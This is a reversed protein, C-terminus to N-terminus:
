RSLGPNLMGGTRLHRSIGRDIREDLMREMARVTQDALDRNQDRTGGSGNVTVSMNNVVSYGAGARQGGQMTVPISRGDPLPVYAEPTSGEGFMAFQPHDAVGGAAYRRLQAPGGPTMIGGDAFLGSFFNGISSFFGGEGGGHMANAASSGLDKGGGSFIGLAGTFLNGLGKAIPDTVAVRLAIREIDKLLAQLVDSLGRGSIVADEFASSFTAGLDAMASSWHQTAEQVMHWAAWLHAVSRYAPWLNRLVNESGGGTVRHQKCWEEFVAAAKNLSADDRTQPRQWRSLVWRLMYGAAFHAVWRQQERLVDVLNEREMAALAADGGVSHEVGLRNLERVIGTIEAANVAHHVRAAFDPDNPACMVSLLYLHDRTALDEGAVGALDTEGFFAALAVSPRRAAAEDDFHLSPLDLVPM